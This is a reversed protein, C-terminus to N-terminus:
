GDLPMYLGNMRSAQFGLARYFIHAPKNRKDALLQIRRAGKGEGWNRVMRILSTGIGKYRCREQVYLDEILLSYGGAATSIVLQGTVMGVLASKKEAVFIAKAECSEFFLTLGAKQTERDVTFDTEISFLDALLASVEGIDARTGKRLRIQMLDEGKSSKGINHIIVCSGFRDPFSSVLGSV